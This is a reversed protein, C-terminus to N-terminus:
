ARTPAITRGQGRRPQLRALWWAELEQADRPSLRYARSMARAFTTLESLRGEPAGSAALSQARRLAEAGARWARADAPQPLELAQRASLKIADPTLAAGSHTRWALATCVPSALAAAIKWLWASGPKRATVSIVPTCPLWAGSEDVLVEIVRTQTALLVKPQLRRELWRAARAGSVRLSAADVRPREIIRGHIRTPSRGWRTDALDILGTTILPPAGAPADAEAHVRGRLAYYEDRFDATAEAVDGLVGASAAKPEPADALLLPAWTSGKMAGRHPTRQPEPPAGSFRRTMGRGTAGRHFSLACTHVDAGFVRGRHSWASTIHALWGCAERLPAADATALLARPLVLGARGGERTLRLALLLFAGAADVYRRVLGGSWAQIREARARDSATVTRMQNLFPPNGVVADFGPRRMEHLLGDWDMGGRRWDLADARIVRPPQTAGPAERELLAWALRVAGPDIDVGTVCALARRRATSEDSGREILEATIRAHAALLFHGTGCAPDLVRIQTPDDCSDLLPQLTVELVHGVLWPPTYHAGLKRRDTARGAALLSEYAAGFRWGEVPAIAVRKDLARLVDLVVRDAGKSPSRRARALAAHLVEDLALDQPRNSSHPTPVAQEGSM